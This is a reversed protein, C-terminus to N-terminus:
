SVKKGPLIGRKGEREQPLSTREETRHLFKGFVIAVLTGLGLYSVVSVVVILTIDV